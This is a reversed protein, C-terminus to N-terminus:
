ESEVQKAADALLEVYTDLGWTLSLATPPSVSAIFEPGVVSAVTGAQVQPLLQAPDSNLFEQAQEDTDAYMVLVDSTLQDLQEFSLTYYFTEGGEGLQHVSDATVFGLDEIFQVRADAQKYVYFTELTPWVVAVTKGQFEPHEVARAAITEDIYQLLQAAQAPKGVSMGVVEIVERWPTAWPEEPYAVTPAIQDLLEYDQSTIGSYPALILDPELAAIAEFPPEVSDPLVTPMEMGKEDVAERIWPLVGAADGGYAQFPIGVPLVDLAILADAAAWGWAVVRTPETEITTEGFAHPVTVPFTSSEATTTTTGATDETAPTTTTTERATTALGSCAAGLALLAILSSLRLTRAKNV